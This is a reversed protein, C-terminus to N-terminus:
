GAHTGGFCYSGFVTGCYECAGGNVPAGCNPCNHIYKQGAQIGKHAELTKLKRRLEETEMRVQISKLEKEIDNSIANAMLFSKDEAYENARYVSMVVAIGFGWVASLVLVITSLAGTM